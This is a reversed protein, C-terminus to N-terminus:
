RLGPHSAGASRGLIFAVTNNSREILVHDITGAPLLFAWGDSVPSKQKM